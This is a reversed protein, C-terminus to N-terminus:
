KKLQVAERYLLALLAINAVSSVVVGAKGIFDITEFKDTLRQKESDTLCYPSAGEAVVLGDASLPNKESASTDPCRTARPADFSKLNYYVSSFSVIMAISTILSGVILHKPSPQKKTKIMRSM